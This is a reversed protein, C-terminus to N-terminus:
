PHRGKSVANLILCTVLATVVATILLFIWNLAMALMALQSVYMNSNYASMTIATSLLGFLFNLIGRPILSILMWLVSLKREPHGQSVCKSNYFVFGLCSFLLYIVFSIMQGALHTPAYALGAGTVVTILLSYILEGVVFGLCIMLGILWFPAKYPASNLPYGSNQYQPVGGTRQGCVKCFVDQETLPNGCYTCHHM